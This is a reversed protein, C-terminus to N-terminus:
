DEEKGYEVMIKKSLGIYDRKETMDMFSLYETKCSFTINKINKGSVYFEFPIGKRELYKRLKSRIRALKVSINNETVGFEKAIDKVSQSFWYRKVFMVRSKQDLSDLFKELIVSLDDETYAELSKNTDPICEELESLSKEYQSNRKQAHNYRFKNLSINRTIKCIYAILSNPKTPPISNWTVLYADNVCEEVDRLDNLIDFSLKKCINGYKNSLESIAQESRDYLLNIIEFEEM